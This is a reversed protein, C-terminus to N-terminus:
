LTPTIQGWGKKGDRYMKRFDKLIYNINGLSVKQLGLEADTSELAASIRM